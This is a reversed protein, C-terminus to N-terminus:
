GRPTIVPPPRLIREPVARILAPASVCNWNAAVAPDGSGSYRPLAPYPCLPREFSPEGAEPVHRAIIRDPAVGEEVWRELALLADHDADFPSTKGANGFSNLGPGAACHALGPAMFLRFFADLADRDFGPTRAAMEAEVSAWYNISNKPAVAADDWGHYQILKGGRSRFARLDPNTANLIPGLMSDVRDVDASFNMDHYDWDPREHVFNRFFEWGFFAQFGFHPTPWGCAESGAAKGTFWLSWNCKHAEAGPEYGPYIEVDADGRRAGRYIAGALEVESATLCSPGDCVLGSLSPRCVLPNTLFNDSPLGGDHGACQRLIHRSLYQLREERLNSTVSGRDYIKQANWVFASFQPTFNNAPAGALVGDFDAPYRQAVMLAQRGGNSCGHFYSRAPGGGKLARIIAKAKDNTEKLARHGYDVVKEPHGMAFSALGRAQSGDDTSATAFGRKVGDALAAYVVSGSFGGNGVQLYRNRYRETPIWVEIGIVSDSTPRSVVVVRCFEPLGTFTPPEGAPTGPVSFNGSSVLEAFTVRANPLSLGTLAGCAIRTLPRFKELPRAITADPPLNPRPAAFSPGVALFAAVFAYVGIRARM